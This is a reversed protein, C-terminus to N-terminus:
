NDRRKCCIQGMLKVKHKKQMHTKPSNGGLAFVSTVFAAVSCIALMYIASSFDCTAFGCLM